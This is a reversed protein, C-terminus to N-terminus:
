SMQCEVPRQARFAFQLRFQMGCADHCYQWSRKCLNDHLLRDLEQKDRLKTM